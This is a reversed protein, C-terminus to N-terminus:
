EEIPEQDDGPSVPEWGPDALAWRDMTVRTRSMFIPKPKLGGIVPYGRADLPKILEPRMRVPVPERSYGYHSGIIKGDSHRHRILQMYGRYLLEGFARRRRERGCGLMNEIDLCRVRWDAPKSWLYLMIAKAEPSIERSQAFEWPVM